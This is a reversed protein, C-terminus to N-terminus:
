LVSEASRNPDTNPVPVWRFLRGGHISGLLLILLCWGLAAYWVIRCYKKVFGATFVILILGAAGAIVVRHLDIGHPMAFFTMPTLEAQRYEVPRLPVPEAALYLELLQTWGSCATDRLVDASLDVASFRVTGRGYKWEALLPFGNDSVLLVEADPRVASCFFEMSTFEYGSYGPFRSRLADAPVDELVAGSLTVPLLEALPVSQANLADRGSMFCLTGGNRVYEKVAAFQASSWRSFDSGAVLLARYNELVEVHRPIEGATLVPLLCNDKLPPLAAAAALNKGGCDSLIGCYFEHSRAKGAYLVPKEVTCAPPQVSIRYEASGDLQFPMRCFEETRAPILFEASYFKDTSDLNKESRLLVTILEDRGTDNRVLFNCYVWAQAPLVPAPFGCSIEANSLILSDAMLTCATMLSILIFCLKCNKKM